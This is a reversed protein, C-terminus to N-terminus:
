SVLDSLTIDLAYTMHCELGYLLSSSKYVQSHVDSNIATALRYARSDSLLSYM